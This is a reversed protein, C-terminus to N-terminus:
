NGLNDLARPVLRRLRAELRDDHEGFSLDHLRLTGAGAQGDVEDGAAGVV